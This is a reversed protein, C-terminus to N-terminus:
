SWDIARHGENTLHPVDDRMEILGLEILAMLDNQSIPSLKTRRAKIDRLAWRLRIATDLNLGDLVSRPQEAMTTANETAGSTEIVNAESVAQDITPQDVSTALPQEARTSIPWDDRFLEAIRENLQRLRDASMEEGEAGVRCGAVAEARFITSRSRFRHPRRRPKPALPGQRATPCCPRLRPTLRGSCSTRFSGGIAVM